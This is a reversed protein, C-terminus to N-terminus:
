ADAKTGAQAKGLTEQQKNEIELHEHRIDLRLRGFLSMYFNAIWVLALWSLFYGRWGPMLLQFGTLALFFAAVYHSLCYECTLLYFFKRQYLRRCSKSKQSCRLERLVEEHTVTWTVTAVPIGLIALKTIQEEVGSM